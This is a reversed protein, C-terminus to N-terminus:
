FDDSSPNGNDTSDGPSTSGGGSSPPTTSHTTTTPHKPTTGGSDGGSTGGSGSGSGAGSGSSGGSDGPSTSGGTGGTGGSGGSDGPSTVGGSGGSDGPSTHGGGSDGPSTGPHERYYLDDRLRDRYQETQWYDITSGTQTWGSDRLTADPGDDDHLAVTTRELDTRRVYAQDIAWQSGVGYPAEYDYNTDTRVSRTLTARVDGLQEDWAAGGGRGAALDYLHFGVTGDPDQSRIVAGGGARGFFVSDVLANNGRLQGVIQERNASSGILGAVQHGAINSGLPENPSFPVARGVFGLAGGADAARFLKKGEQVTLSGVPSLGTGRAHLDAVSTGAPLNAELLVFKGGLKVIATSGTEAHAAGAADVISGYGAPNGVVRGLTAAAHSDTTGIREGSLKGADGVALGALDVADPHARGMDSWKGEGAPRLFDGDKTVLGAWKIGQTDIKLDGLNANDFDKDRYDVIAYRDGGTGLLAMDDGLEVAKAQADELGTIGSAAFAKYKPQLGGAFSSGLMVAGVAAGAIALPVFATGRVAALGGGGMAKMGVAAAGGVAAAAGGWRLFNRWGSPNSVLLGKDSVKLDSPASTEEVGPAATSGAAAQANLSAPVSSNIGTM